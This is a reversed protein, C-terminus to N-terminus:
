FIVFHILITNSSGNGLISSCTASSSSFHFSQEVELQEEASPVRGGGPALPGPTDPAGRRARSPSAQFAALPPGAPRPVVLGELELALFYLQFEFTQAGTLKLVHDDSYAFTLSSFKRRQLSRVNLASFTQMRICSIPVLAQLQFKLIPESSCPLSLSPLQFCLWLSSQSLIRESYKSALLWLPSQSLSYQFIGSANQYLDSITLIRNRLRSPANEKLSRGRNGSKLNEIRFIGSHSIASVHKGGTASGM